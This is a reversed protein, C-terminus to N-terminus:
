VSPLAWPERREYDMWANAEADNGFNWNQPDWSLPRGHWYALNGLHCVAASRAGIEVDAVPRSRDRIANLWDRHHGPSEYLRVEDRGLPERTADKPDSSLHGRDVRLTGQTGFFTIGSAGGHTLEIGNEYLYRVGTGASPDDPPIIKVPGSTDMGLAWQAIDYHHAGIDTHGGGSYERYQRWQGWPKSIGGRASLASHYPRRPAPGLWLDWDLGPEIEEEPLDCWKSPGGVGVTVKQIKGIRGSQIFECAKRFPGFVSSRQQSGTQLVRGHKRVADICRKAELLTLTLPKECYVDKGAQCAEIVPIAHWHDPTAILVADIDDRELVQRFHTYAACGQDGARSGYKETVRKRAIERRTTDVDCVAVIQVDDFGLLADMHYGSCMKGTGILGVSLRENAAARGPARGLASAPVIWPIGLVASTKLFSRRSNLQSRIM